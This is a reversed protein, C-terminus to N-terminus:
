GRATAGRLPDSRSEERADAKDDSGRDESGARRRAPRVLLHVRREAIALVAVGALVVPVVARRDGGGVAAVVAAAALHRVDVSPPAGDGDVSPPSRDGGETTVATTPRNRQGLAASPAAQRPDPPLGGPQKVLRVYVRSIVGSRWM